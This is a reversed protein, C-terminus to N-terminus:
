AEKKIKSPEEEQKDDSVPIKIEGYEAEMQAINKDLWNRLEKAFPASLYISALITRNIDTITGPVLQNGMIVTDELPPFEDRYFDIRYHCNDLFGGMAGHAYLVQHDEAKRVHVPLEVLEGKENKGQFIMLTADTTGGLVGEHAAYELM